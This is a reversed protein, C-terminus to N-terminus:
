FVSYLTQGFRRSNWITYWMNYQKWYLSPIPATLRRVFTNATQVSCCWSSPFLEMAVRTEFYASSESAYASGFSTLSKKHWLRTFRRADSQCEFAIRWANAPLISHVSTDVKPLQPADAQLFQRSIPIIPYAITALRWRHQRQTADIQLLNKIDTATLAPIRRGRVRVEVVYSEGILSDHGFTYAYKDIRRKIKRPLPSMCAVLSLPQCPTSITCDQICVYPLKESSLTEYPSVNNLSSRAKSVAKLISSWQELATDQYVKAERVSSFHLIWSSHRRGGLSDCPIVIISIRLILM